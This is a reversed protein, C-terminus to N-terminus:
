VGSTSGTSIPCAAHSIDPQSRKQLSSHLAPGVMARCISREVPMAGENPIADFRSTVCSAEVHAPASPTVTISRPRSRAKRASRGSVQQGPDISAQRQRKLHETGRCDPLKGRKRGGRHFLAKPACTLLKVTVRSSDIRARDQWWQLFTWRRVIRIRPRSSRPLSPRGGCAPRYRHWHAAAADLRPATPPASGSRSPRISEVGGQGFVSLFGPSHHAVPVGPVLPAPSPAGGRSDGFVRGIGYRTWEKPNGCGSSPAAGEDGARRGRLLLLSPLLSPSSPPYLTEFRSTPLPGTSPTVFRSINRNDKVGRGSCMPRECCITAMTRVSISM